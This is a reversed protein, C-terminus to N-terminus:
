LQFKFLFEDLFGQDPPPTAYIYIYGTHYNLKLKKVAVWFIKFVELNNPLLRIRRELQHPSIEECLGQSNLTVLRLAVARRFM